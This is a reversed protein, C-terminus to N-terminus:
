SHKSCLQSDRVLLAGYYTAEFLVNGFCVHENWFCAFFIAEGGGDNPFDTRSFTKVKVTSLILICSKGSFPYVIKLYPAETPINPVEFAYKRSVIKSTWKTIKAKDAIEKFEAQVDELTAPVETDVGDVLIYSTYCCLMVFM